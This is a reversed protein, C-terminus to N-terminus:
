GIRSVDLLRELDDLLAEQEPHAPYSLVLNGHPDVVYLRGNGAPPVGASELADALDSYSPTGTEAFSLSPDAATAFAAADPGIYVRRVRSQDRNLRAHVRAVRLLDEQCAEGCASTRVHVLSWQPGWGFSGEADAEAVGDVPPLPVAPQVLVREENPVLPLASLDGYYYLLYAALVPGFCVAALVLLEIKFRRRM